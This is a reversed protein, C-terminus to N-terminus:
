RESGPLARVGRLLVFIPGGDGEIRAVGDGGLTDCVWACLAAATPEDSVFGITGIEWSERQPMVDLLAQCAKREAEDLSLNAAGWVFQRRPRSFTGLVVADAEAVGRGGREIRARGREAPVVRADEGLGFRAALARERARVRAVADDRERDFAASPSRVLGPLFAVRGEPARVFTGGGLAELDLDDIAVLAEVARALAPLAGRVEPGEFAEALRAEDGVIDEVAVDVVIPEGGDDVAVHVLLRGWTDWAFAAEFLGALEGLIGARAQARENPEV